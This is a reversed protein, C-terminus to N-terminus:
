ISLSVSTSLFGFVRLISGKFVFSRYYRQILTKGRLVPQGTSLIDDPLDFESLKMVDGNEDETPSAGDKPAGHAQSFDNQEGFVAEMLAQPTATILQWRQTM